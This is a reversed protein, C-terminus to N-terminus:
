PAFLEDAVYLDVRKQVNCFFGSVGVVKIKGAFGNYRHELQIGVVGFGPSEFCLYLGMVFGLVPEGSSTWLDPDV